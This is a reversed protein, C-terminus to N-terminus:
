TEYSARFCDAIFTPFATHSSLAPGTVGGASSAAVTRRVHEMTHGEFLVMPQVVINEVKEDCWLALAEEVTPSSHIGALELRSFREKLGNLAKTVTEFGNFRYVSFMVSCESAQAGSVANVALDSAMSAIATARASLSPLISCDSAAALRAIDNRAHWGEGLLLPLVRAGEPVATTDLYRLEIGEGLQEAAKDALAQVEAAHRSDSSGHALLINM